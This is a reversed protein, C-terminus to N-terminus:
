VRIIPKSHMTCKLKFHHTGDVTIMLRCYKGNGLPIEQCMDDVIDIGLVKLDERSKVKCSSLWWTSKGKTDIGITVGEWKIQYPTGEDNVTMNITPTLAFRMQPPWPTSERSLSFASCSKDKFWQVVSADSDSTTTQVKLIVEQVTTKKITLLMENSQSGTPNEKFQFSAPATEIEFKEINAGLKFNVDYNSKYSVKTSEKLEKTKMINRKQTNLNGKYAKKIAM